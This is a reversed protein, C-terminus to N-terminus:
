ICSTWLALDYNITKIKKKDKKKREYTYFPIHM